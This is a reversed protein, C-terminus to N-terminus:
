WMSTKNLILCIVVDAGERRIGWGGKWVNWPDTIPKSLNKLVFNKVTNAGLFGSTEACWAATTTSYDCPYTKNEGVGPTSIVLDSKDTGICAQDEWWDEGYKCDMGTATEVDGFQLYAPNTESAALHQLECEHGGCLYPPGCSNDGTQGVTFKVGDDPTDITFIFPDDWRDGGCKGKKVYYILDIMESNNNIVTYNDCIDANKHKAGFLAFIKDFFDTVTKNGTVVLVIVLLAIILFVITGM